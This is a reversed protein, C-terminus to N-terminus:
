KKIKISRIIAELEFMYDRKEISPAYTFGEAIIWRNNTEDEIAYNIYPGGMVAGFVKWMGKTQLSPKNDLITKSHFPTYANETIMYSNDVPGGIYKKGISDRINIIQQIMSSDKNIAKYPLEYLLVNTYGTPIDKKIWYFKDEESATTKGIRYATPFSINLGLNKTIVQDNYLSKKILSQKKQLEIKKFTEVIKPANEKLLDIASKKDKASITVVKQPKAYVNDNYDVANPKGLDIKLITRNKTIFGSFVQPPIQNINFLPEDQPLGYVPAALVDRIAEGLVGKWLDNDLIVSVANIPGESDLLVKNESKKGKKCSVITLVTFVIYLINKM